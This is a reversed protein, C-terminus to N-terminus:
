AAAHVVAASLAAFVSAVAAVDPVAAPRSLLAPPETEPSCEQTPTAHTNIM